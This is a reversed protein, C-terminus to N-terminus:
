HTQVSDEVQSQHVRLVNLGTLTKRLLSLLKMTVCIGLKRYYCVSDLSRKLLAIEHTRTTFNTNLPFSWWRKTLLAFTSQM